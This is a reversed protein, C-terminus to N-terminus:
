KEWGGWNDENRRKPKERMNVHGCKRSIKVRKRFYKRHHKEV